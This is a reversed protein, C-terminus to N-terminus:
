ASFYLRRGPQGQQGCVETGHAHHGTVAYLLRRESHDKRSLIDSLFSAPQNIHSFKYKLPNMGGGASPKSAPTNEANMSLFAMGAEAVALFLTYIGIIVTSLWATTPLKKRENCM